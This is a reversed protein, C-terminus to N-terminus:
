ELGALFSLLLVGGVACLLVWGIAPSLEISPSLGLARIM